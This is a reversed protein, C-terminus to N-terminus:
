RRRWRWTRSSDECLKSGDRGELSQHCCVVFITCSTRMTPANQQFVVLRIRGKSQKVSCSSRVCVVRWSVNAFMIATQDGNLDQKRGFNTLIKLATEQSCESIAHKFFNLVRYIRCRHTSDAHRVAFVAVTAIAQDRTARLPAAVAAARFHCSRHSAWVRFKRLHHGGALPM